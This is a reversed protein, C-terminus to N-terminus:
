IKTESIYASLPKYLYMGSALNSANFSVEYNGATKIENILTAIESGLIDYVKLTVLEPKAITYKITTIPNFPNPYNQMLNYSFVKEPAASIKGAKDVYYEVQNSPGSDEEDFFAVVYYQANKPIENMPVIMEVENDVFAFEDYLVGVAEFSSSEWKRYVQYFLVEEEGPYPAWILMPHNNYKSKFVSKNWDVTELTYERDQAILYGEGTIFGNHKFRLTTGDTIFAANGAIDLEGTILNVDEFVISDPLTQKGWAIATLPDGVVINRWANYYIGQYQADVISYGMAYAPMTYYDQTAGDTWPEYVHGSGGTGGKFIFDSILGQGGRSEGFSFGNFSEWSLFNAGNVYNFTLVDRIYTPPM